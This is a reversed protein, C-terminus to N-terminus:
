PYIKHNQGQYGVLRLQNRSARYEHKIGSGSSLFIKWGRVTMDACFEDEREAELCSNAFEMPKVEASIESISIGLRSSLDAKALEVASQEDLKKKM